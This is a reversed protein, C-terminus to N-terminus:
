RIGPPAPRRGGVWRAAEFSASAVLASAGVVLGVPHLRLRAIMVYAILALLAYRGALRVMARAPPIAPRAREAEDAAPGGLFAAVLGDIGTRISWYSVGAIVGGGLVGIGVDPNGGRLALAIAAM